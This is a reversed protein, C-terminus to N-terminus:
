IGLGRGIVLRHVDLRKAGLAIRIGIERTRQSVSFALVGYLGVISLVHAIAAFLGFM